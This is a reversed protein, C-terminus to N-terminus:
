IFGNIKVFHCKLVFINLFINKIKVLDSMEELKFKFIKRITTFLSLQNCNIDYSQDM